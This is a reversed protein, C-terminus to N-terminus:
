PDALLRWLPRERESTPQPTSAIDVFGSEHALWPFPPHPRRGSRACFRVESGLLFREVPAPLGLARVGDYRAPTGDFAESSGTEPTDALVFGLDSYHRRVAFMVRNADPATLRLSQLMTVQLRGVDEWSAVPTGTPLAARAATTDRAALLFAVSRRCFPRISPMGLYRKGGCLDKPTLKGGARKAEIVLVAAGSEDEWCLVIDTIDPRERPSRRQEWGYSWNARTVIGHPIGWLDLLPGVWRFDPMAAWIDFLAPTIHDERPEVYFGRTSALRWQKGDARVCNMTHDAWLRRLVTYRPDLRDAPLVPVCLWWHSYTRPTEILIGTM